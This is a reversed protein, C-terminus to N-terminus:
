PVCVSFLECCVLDQKIQISQATAADLQQKLQAATSFTDNCSAPFPLFSDSHRYRLTWEGAQILDYYVTSNTVIHWCQNHTHNPSIYHTSKTFSKYNSILDLPHLRITFDWQNEECFEEVTSLWESSVNAPQKPTLALCLTTNPKPKIPEKDTYIPHGCVPFAVDPRKKQLFSRYTEGWVYFTDCQMNLWVSETDPKFLGGESLNCIQASYTPIGKARYYNFYVSEPFTSPSAAVFYSPSHQQALVKHYKATQYSNYIDIWLCVSQWINYTKPAGTKFAQNTQQIIDLSPIAVRYSQKNYDLWVVHKKKEPFLAEEYASWMAQKNNHSRHQFYCLPAGKVPAHRLSKYSTIFFLYFINKCLQRTTYNSWRDTAINVSSRFLINSPTLGHWTPLHADFRKALLSLQKRIQHATDNM